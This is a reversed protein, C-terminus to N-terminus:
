YLYILKPWLTGGNPTDNILHFIYCEYAVSKFFLYSLPKKNYM